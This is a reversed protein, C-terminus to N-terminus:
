QPNILNSVRKYCERLVLKILSEKLYGDGVLVFHVEVNNVMLISAEILYELANAMGM